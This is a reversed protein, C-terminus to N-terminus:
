LEQAQQAFQDKEKQNMGPRKIQTNVTTIISTNM